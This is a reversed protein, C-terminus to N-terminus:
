LQKNIVNKAHKKTAYDINFDRTINKLDQRNLLLTRQITEPTIVNDRISDLIHDYTVGKKLKESFFFDILRNLLFLFAKFVSLM